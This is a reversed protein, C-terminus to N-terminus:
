AARRSSANQNAAILEQMLALLPNIGLMVVAHNPDTIYNEDSPLIYNVHAKLYRVLGPSRRLEKSFARLDLDEDRLLLVLRQLEYRNPLDFTEPRPAFRAPQRDGVSTNIAVHGSRRAFSQPASNM